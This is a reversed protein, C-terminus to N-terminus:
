IQGAALTEFFHKYFSSIVNIGYGNIQVICPLRSRPLSHMNEELSPIYIVKKQTVRLTGFITPEDLKNM